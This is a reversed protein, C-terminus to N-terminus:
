HHFNMITTHPIHRGQLMVSLNSIHDLAELQDVKKQQKQQYEDQQPTTGQTAESDGGKTAEASATQIAKVANAFANDAPEHYQETTDVFTAPAETTAFDANETQDELADKIDEPVTSGAYLTEIKQSIRNTRQKILKTLRKEVNTFKTSIMGNIQRLLINNNQQMVREMRLHFVELEEPPVDINITNSTPPCSAAQRFSSENPELEEKIRDMIHATVDDSELAARLSAQLEDIGLLSVQQSTTGSESIVDTRFVPVLKEEPISRQCNMIFSMVPKPVILSDDDVDGSSATVM